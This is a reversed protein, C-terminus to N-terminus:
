GIEKAILKRFVDPFKPAADDLAPSLFPRAPMNMQRTFPGVSFPSVTRGFCVTRMHQKVNETGRFGFEHIAAYNADSGIAVSFPLGTRDISISGRLRNTRSTLKHPLPPAKGGPKIKQKTAIRQVLEACEILGDRLLGRNKSLDLRALLRQVDEIGKVSVSLNVAM